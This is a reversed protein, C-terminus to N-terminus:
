GHDEVYKLAAVKASSKGGWWTSCPGYNICGGYGSPETLPLRKDGRILYWWYRGRRSDFLLVRFTTGGVEFEYYDRVWSCGPKGYSLLNLEDTDTSLQPTM